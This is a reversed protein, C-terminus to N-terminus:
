RTLGQHQADIFHASLCQLTRLSKGRFLKNYNDAHAKHQARM